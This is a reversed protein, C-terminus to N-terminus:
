VFSQMVFDISLLVLLHTNNSALVSLSLPACFRADVQEGMMFSFGFLVGCATGFKSM